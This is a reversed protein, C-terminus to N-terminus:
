KEKIIEQGDWEPAPPKKAHRRSRDIFLESVRDAPLLAKVSEFYKLAKAFDRRYYLQLGAHHYKWARETRPDLGTRATFIKEGTTKGKVVVKDLMRCPFLTRVERYVSESFIVGEPYIKNLGELRNALNVMDGIVTYDMKKETGINGVTVEGYSIGVGTTFPPRGAATQDENFAAIAVQMELAARVAQEADNEHPVPAGFFAMVADGIYKDVIGDRKMIVDVLLSFYSNLAKVLEDPAFGESLTTFSRIDSFLVALMRNDGVLMQEPHMFLSDIVDKPVYKQFINRVKHENKQALVAKFAFEKIQGYARDLQHIMRNFTSALEGIEDQFEVEVRRSMDNYSIIDRMVTVVRRLPRTLYGTFLLLLVLSLVISGSLIYISQKQIQTVERYFAAADETVLVYWDFEGYVFASGVRSRGGIRLEVWGETSGESLGRLAVKEGLELEIAETSLAVNHESDFALIIESESRILSRAYSAIAKKTIELYEPRRELGNEVLLNWQSDAYKKLEEAKFGLSEMAIRTMGNRASYASFIGTILLGSVLLPLVVLIIKTRISM